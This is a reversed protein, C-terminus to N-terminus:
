CPRDIEAGQDTRCKQTVILACGSVSCDIEFWAETDTKRIIYTRQLNNKSTAKSIGDPKVEGDYVKVGGAATVAKEYHRHILSVDPDNTSKLKENYIRVKLIKGKVTYLRDSGVPYHHLSIDRLSINEDITTLTDTVYRYGKPPLIFPFEGIDKDTVPIASTSFPIIPPVTRSDPKIEPDPAPNSEHVTQPSLNAEPAAPPSSKENDDKGCASALMVLSLITLFRLKANM